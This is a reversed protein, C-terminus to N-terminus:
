VHNTGGATQAADFYKDLKNALARMSLPKELFDLNSMKSTWDRHEQDTMSTM